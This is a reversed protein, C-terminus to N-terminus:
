SARICADELVLRWYARTRPDVGPRDLSASLAGAGFFRRAADVQERDGFVLVREIVWGPYREFDGAELDKEWFLPALLRVLRGPSRVRPGAERRAVLRIEVDAGLAGAIRRLTDLRFRDWGTEYRHLSPASTGARRAVEELTLGFRTRLARIQAGIPANINDNM